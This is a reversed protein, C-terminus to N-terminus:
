FERDLNTGMMLTSGSAYAVEIPQDTPIWHIVEINDRPPLQDVVVNAPPFFRGGSLLAHVPVQEPLLEILFITDGMLFSYINGAELQAM